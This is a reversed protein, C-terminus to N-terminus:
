LSKELFSWCQFDEEYTYDSTNQNQHVYNQNQYAYNQNQDAYIQKQYAYNQNQYTKSQQANAPQYSAYNSTKQYAKATQNDSFLCYMDFFQVM